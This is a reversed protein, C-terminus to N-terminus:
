NNNYDGPGPSQKILNIMSHKLRSESKFVATPSNKPNKCFIGESEKLANEVDEETRFKGPHYSGPGPLLKNRPNPSKFRPAESNFGVLKSINQSLGKARPVMSNLDELPHYLNKQHSGFLAAYEAIKKMEKKPVNEIREPKPTKFRKTDSQFMFSQKSKEKKLNNEFNLKKLKRWRSARNNTSLNSNNNLDKLEDRVAVPSRYNGPSKTTDKFRPSTSIFVTKDDKKFRQFKNNKNESKSSQAVLNYKGPGVEEMQEKSLCPRQSNVLFASKNVIGDEMAKEKQAKLIEDQIRKPIRKPQYYHGVGPNNIFTPSGFPTKEVNLFHTRYKYTSGFAQPSTAIEETLSLSDEQTINYDGPGPSQKIEPYRETKSVFPSRMKINSEIPATNLAISHYDNAEVYFSDDGEQKQAKSVLINLYNSMSQILSNNTASYDHSSEDIKLKELRELLKKQNDGKSSSDVVDGIFAEIYKNLSSNNHPSSIHHSKILASPSSKYLVKPNPNYRVPSLVEAKKLKKNPISPSTKEHKVIGKHIKKVQKTCKEIPSNLILSGLENSGGTSLDYQYTNSILDNSTNLYQDSAKRKSKSIGIEDRRMSESLQSTHAARSINKNIVSSSRCHPIARSPDEVKSNFVCQYSNKIKQTVLSIPESEYEGPGPLIKKEKVVKPDFRGQTSGFSAPGHYHDKRVNLIPVNYKGPAAKSKQLNNTIWFDTQRKDKQM